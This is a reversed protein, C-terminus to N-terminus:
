KLFIIYEVMSSPLSSKLSIWYKYVGKIKWIKCYKKSFAGIKVMNLKKIKFLYSKKQAFAFIYMNIHNISISINYMWFLYFEFFINQSIVEGFYFVYEISFFYKKFYIWIKRWANKKIISHNSNRFWGINEILVFEFKFLIFCDFSKVCSAVWFDSNNFFYICLM